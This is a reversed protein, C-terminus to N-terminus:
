NVRRQPRLTVPGLLGSDVLPWNSADFKKYHIDVYNIEHFAKWKGGQKDMDRIRNAADASALQADQPPPENQKTQQDTHDHNACGALLFAPLFSFLALRRLVTMYAQSLPTLEEPRWRRIFIPGGKGHLDGGEDQDAVDGERDHHLGM